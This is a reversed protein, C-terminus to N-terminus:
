CFLWFTVLTRMARLTEPPEPFEAEIRKALPECEPRRLLQWLAEDCLAVNEAFCDFRDSFERMISFYKEDGFFKTSPVIFSEYRNAWTRMFRRDCLRAEIQRAMTEAMQPVHEERLEILLSTHETYGKFLVDFEDDSLEMLYNRLTFLFDDQREVILDCMRQWLFRRYETMELGHMFTGWVYTVLLTADNEDLVAPQAPLTVDPVPQTMLDLAGTNVVRRIWDIQWATKRQQSVLEKLHRAFHYRLADDHDLIGAIEDLPFGLYRLNRIHVLRTVDKEDLDFYGNELTAPALLGLRIYHHITKRSMGVLEAAEGIRM